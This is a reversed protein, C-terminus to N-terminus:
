APALGHRRIHEAAMLITMRSNADRITGDMVLDLVRDLPHRELGVVTLQEFPEPRAEGVHEVVALFLHERCRVTATGLDATGLSILRAEIGAEESLERRVGQEPADGDELGGGIVELTERGMQPRYQRILYAYGEADVPLALVSDRHVVSEWELLSGDPLAQVDRVVKFRSNAHLVDTRVIRIPSRGSV